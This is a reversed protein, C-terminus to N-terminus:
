SSLNAPHHHSHQHGPASEARRLPHGPRRAHWFRAAATARPYRAPLVLRYAPDQLDFCLGLAVHRQVQRSRHSLQRCFSRDGLRALLLLVMRRHTFRHEGDTRPALDLFEAVAGSDGALAQAFPRRHTRGDTYGWSTYSASALGQDDACLERWTYGPFPDEARLTAPPSGLVTWFFVAVVLLRHQVM